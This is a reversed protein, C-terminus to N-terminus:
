RIEFGLGRAVEINKENAHGKSFAVDGNKSIFYRNGGGRGYVIACINADEPLRAIMKLANQVTYEDTNWEAMQADAWSQGEIEAMAALVPLLNKLVNM